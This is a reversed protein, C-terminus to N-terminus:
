YRNRRHAANNDHAALAAFERRSARARLPRSAIATPDRFRPTSPASSAADRGSPSGLLAIFSAAAGAIGPADMVQSSAPAPAGAALDFADLVAASADADANRRRRKAASGNVAHIVESGTTPAQWSTLAARIEAHSKGVFSAYLKSLGVRRTPHRLHTAWHYRRMEHKGTTMRQHDALRAARKDDEELFESNDSDETDLLTPYRGRVGPLAVGIPEASTAARGHDKLPQMAACADDPGGAGAAAAASLSGGAPEVTDSSEGPAAAGIGAAAHGSSLFLATHQQDAPRKLAL